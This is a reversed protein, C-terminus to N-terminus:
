GPTVIFFETGGVLIDVAGENAGIFAAEGPGLEVSSAASLTSADTNMKSSSSRLTIAEGVNLVIRPVGGGFSMGGALTHARATGAAGTVRSVAFDPVPVDFHQVEYPGHHQRAPQMRPDALTDFVLVRELEPVDIHKATLGGRLVNDSNAMVEVGFGGLYAHLNGAPLFLAEGPALEIHNLLLAALIGRDGPFTQSITIINRSVPDSLEAARTVVAGVLTTPDALALWGTLVSRLRDREDISTDALTDAARDLEPIHFSRLLAATDGLPRFGAMAEFPTLAVLIEPKHNTDKYNRSPADLPVGAAEERAWGERAQDLSPHAQISLACSAALLKVLFPLRGGFEAATEDGLMADPAAAIVQDLPGDPTEAPASSHAGFWAEAEPQGSPERGQLSAISTTDGWAYHQLQATLKLM